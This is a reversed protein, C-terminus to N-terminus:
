HWRRQTTEPRRHSAQGSNKHKQVLFIASPAKWRDMGFLPSRAAARPRADPAQGRASGREGRPARRLRRGGRRLRGAIGVVAIHVGVLDDVVLVLLGNM